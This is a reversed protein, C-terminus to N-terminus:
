GAGDGPGVHRVMSCDAAADLAQVTTAQPGTTSTPLPCSNLLATLNELPPVVRM